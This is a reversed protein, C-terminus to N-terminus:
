SVSAPGESGSAPVPAAADLQERLAQVGELEVPAGLLEADVARVELWRERTMRYRNVVAAAGGRVVRAIGDPEYGVKRSVANSAANDEFAGSTVSEAGLGDFLLHLMLVRMRTGIGHGQHERGLWSGTEVERLVPWDAGSGGQAGVVTGGSLVALELTLKAGVRERAAWHYGLVRRAVETPIGQTWPTYFPMAAPDHV